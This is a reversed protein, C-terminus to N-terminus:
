QYKLAEPTVIDENALMDGKAPGFWIGGGFTIIFVKDANRPDPEVRKGWKFNYGKIRTWTQGYDISYYALGEFGCAYFTKNRKDYTVDHIHQDKTLVPIWNKGDDKSLFIGGGMDANFAGPTTRGWASLILWGHNLPDDILCTPDNTNQPLTIKEWSEAKDLSRYLAGDDKSGINADEAKRSVILFLAGDNYRNIIRWTFLNDKAIGKNKQEWTKGGDISKYVGKGFACAYLTRNNVNSKNDILIHTFAADGVESSVPRWTKGADETQVIGGTFYSIGKGKNWMKTRPLDHTGSMAAWARGRISPDFAMWYTSNVWKKPIGNKYTASAWSHGGDNSQMLGVDTVCNFVNDLDFPNFVINYGTTVDLGKTTWGKKEIQTTYVQEWTKGGNISKVTRGFDTTFCIDPNNPSVGISFPNEGWSPGFRSELWGGNFNSAVIEGKDSLMDKWVLKWTNGFDESKAVGFGLTNGPLTLNNYSVYVVAPHNSSTAISRWEPNPSNPMGLVILSQQRNQWTAGEDDSIYIGQSTGKPDFYSKGAIAYMIYKKLKADFGSTYQTLNNVENPVNNIMWIGNKRSRIINNSTLIITRNGVPSSPNIFINQTTESLAIEKKWSKGANTSIYFGISDNISISAYLINSHGPDVALALVKRFSGDNNIIQDEAEDSKSVVGKVLEPQPYVLAWTNGRDSSRFLGISNAYIVNSDLPDFVFFQIAGRLNFMRWNIGGNHTIYGGGMDCNVVALYDNFPSISAHFMAGGGGAGVFAWKNALTNTSTVISHTAQVQATISYCNIFVLVLM